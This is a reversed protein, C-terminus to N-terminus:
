PKSDKKYKKKDHAKKHTKFTTGSRAATDKLLTSIESVLHNIKLDDIEDSHELNHLLANIPNLDSITVNTLYGYAAIYVGPM